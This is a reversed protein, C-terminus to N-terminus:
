GNPRTSGRNQDMFPDSAGIAMVNTRLASRAHRANADAVRQETTELHARLRRLGDRIRSKVTPLPIGLLASVELYSHGGFFALVVSQRQKPTLVGMAEEITRRDLRAAVEDLPPNEFDAYHACYSRDRERSAQVSRIRDITRSRAIGMIWASGTGRSPDFRAAGLWVALFVEQTVEEALAANRMLLQAVRSVPTLFRAYLLDFAFRDGDAVAALLGEVTEGSTILRSHIAPNGARTLPQDV